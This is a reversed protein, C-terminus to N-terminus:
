FWLDDSKQTNNVIEVWAQLTYVYMMIYDLM